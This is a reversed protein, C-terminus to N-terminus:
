SNQSILEQADIVPISPFASRIKNRFSVCDLHKNDTSFSNLAIANLPFPNLSSINTKLILSTSYASTMIQLPHKIIIEGKFNLLASKLKDFVVDTIAGPIFIYDLNQSLLTIIDKEHKFASNIDTKCIKNNMKYCLYETKPLKHQNKKISSLSILKQLEINISNLDGFVPSALLILNNIEPSLAISKRDLSGDIFIKQVNMKKLIHCLEIQQDVTHPGFIETQVPQLTKLLYLPKSLVNFPLKKVIEISNILPNITDHIATFYCNKNLLLKPKKLGTLFDNDEGDHGTTTVALSLNEPASNLLFNLFSTKGANKSLGAITVIRNKSDFIQNLLDTIDKIEKQIM